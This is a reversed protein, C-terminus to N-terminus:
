KFIKETLSSSAIKSAIFGLISLTGFVILVNRFHFEVPYPLYSTIMVLDFQMQAFVIIIGLIIGLVGGLVTLLVGQLLFIRRIQHLPFGLHHLTKLNDKKDLILMMISGIVNFLAVILVLVAIAYIFLNESNLMKYLASNQEMRTKIDFNTGLVKQLSKKVENINANPKLKLELANIQNTKYNMLHQVVKLDVFVYKSDIEPNINFFGAPSTAIKRFANMPNSIQGKGAKPMYIELFARYDSIGIGLANAISSGIVADESRPKFWSGIYITSDLAVTKTFLSDVGRVYALKKKNKYNFYAREELTKSYNAVGSVTTLQAALSDTFFFSKGQNSTIKIDPDFHQIFSLNFSKLGDFTSLVVFLAMSIMIVGFTAIRSIVNIANSKSKSFL